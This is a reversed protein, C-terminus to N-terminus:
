VINNKLFLTSQRCRSQWQITCFWLLPMLAPPWTLLSALGSRTKTAFTLPGLKTWETPHCDLYVNLANDAFICELSCTNRGAQKFSPCMVKVRWTCSLMKNGKPGQNLFMWSTRSRQTPWVRTAIGLHVNANRDWWRARGRRELMLAFLLCNVGVACLFFVMARFFWLILDFSVILSQADESHRAMRGSTTKPRLNRRHEAASARRTNNYHRKKRPEPAATTTGTGQIFQSKLFETLAASSLQVLSRQPESVEDDCDAFYASDNSDVDSRMLLYVFYIFWSRLFRVSICVFFQAFM